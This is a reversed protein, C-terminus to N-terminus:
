GDRPGIVLRVDTETICVSLHTPSPLTLSPLIMDEDEYFEEEKITKM